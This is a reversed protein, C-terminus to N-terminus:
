RSACGAVCRTNVAAGHEAPDVVDADRDVVEVGREREVLAIEAHADHVALREVPLADLGRQEVDALVVDLQESREGRCAPRCTGRWGRARAEVVDGVLRGVDVGLQGRSFAAPTRSMSSGGRM